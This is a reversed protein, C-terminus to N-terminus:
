GGTHFQLLASAVDIRVQSETRWGGGCVPKGARSGPSLFNLLWGRAGVRRGTTKMSFAKRSGPEAAILTSRSGCFLDLVNEGTDQKDGKSSSRFM